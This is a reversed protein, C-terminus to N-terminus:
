AKMFLTGDPRERKGPYHGEDCLNCFQIYGSEDSHCSERLRDMVGSLISGVPQIGSAGKHVKKKQPSYAHNGDTIDCTLRANGDSGNGTHEIVVARDSM